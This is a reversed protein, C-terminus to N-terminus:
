SKEMIAGNWCTRSLIPRLGTVAFRSTIGLMFVPACWRRCNPKKLIRRNSDLCKGQKVTLTYHDMNARPDNVLEDSEHHWIVRKVDLPAAGQVFEWCDRRNSTYLASQVLYFRTRETTLRVSFFRKFEPSDIQDNVMKDLTATLETVLSM